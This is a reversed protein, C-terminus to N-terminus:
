RKVRNRVALLALGIFFPGLLRLSIRVTEGAITLHDTLDADGGRLSLMCSAWYVTVEVYSPSIGHFGFLLSILSLSLLTTIFGISARGARLGYGSLMWYLFIVAREARPTGRSHRRMEMEGYYFDAAGPGDGAAEHSSRLARYLQSVTEASPSRADAGSWGAWGQASRWQREEDIVQRSSWWVSPRRGRRFRLRKPTQSFIPNGSLRLLDLNNTEAFSCTSLDFHAITLNTVDSSRLSVLMPHSRIKKPHLGDESLNGRAGESTAFHFIDAEGTLLSPKGFRVGEARTISNRVRIEIPDEFQTRSMDFRHASVSIRGRGTWNCDNIKLTGAVALPGMFTLDSFSSGEFNIVDKVEVGQMQFKGSVEADRATLGGAFISSNFSCDVLKARSFNVSSHWVIQSFKGIRLIEADSFDARGCLESGTFGVGEGCTANRFTLDKNFRNNTIRTFRQFQVGSFQANGKFTCSEFHAPQTFVCERFNAIGQFTVGKFKIIGHLTSHEFFARGIHIEGSESRLTELIVNLRNAHINTRQFVLVKGPHLSEVFLTFEEETAHELCRSTDPLRNAPCDNSTCDTETM